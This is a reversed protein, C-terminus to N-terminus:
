SALVSAPHYAGTFHVHPRGAPLPTNRKRESVRSRCSGASRWARGECLNRLIRVSKGIWYGRNISSASRGGAWQRDADAAPASFGNASRLHWDRRWNLGNPNPRHEEDNGLTGPTARDQAKCLAVGNTGNAYSRGSVRGAGAAPFYAVVWLVAAFRPGRCPNFRPLPWDICRSPLFLKRSPCTGHCHQNSTSQRKGVPNTTSLSV